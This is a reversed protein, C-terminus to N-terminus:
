LKSWTGAQKSLGAENGPFVATKQASNMGGRHPAFVNSRWQSLSLSSVIGDPHDITPVEGGPFQYKEGVNLFLM